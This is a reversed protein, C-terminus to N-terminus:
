LVDARARPRDAGPPLLGSGRGGAQRGQPLCQQAPVRLQGVQTVHEFLLVQDGAVGHIAAGGDLQAVVLPPGHWIPQAAQAPATVALGLLLLIRLQFRVARSIM